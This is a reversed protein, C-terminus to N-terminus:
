RTAAARRGVVRRDAETRAAPAGPKAGRITDVIRADPEYPAPNEIAAKLSLAHADKPLISLAEGNRKRALSRAGREMYISAEANLIGVLRGTADSHAKALKMDGPAGEIGKSALSRARRFHPKAAELARLLASGEKGRAAVLAKEGRALLADIRSPAESFAASAVLLLTMATLRM